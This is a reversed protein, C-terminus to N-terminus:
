RIKTFRLSFAIPIGLFGFTDFKGIWDKIHGPLIAEYRNDERVDVIFVATRGVTIHFSRNPATLIRRIARAVPCRSSCQKVGYLIDSTEVYIMIEKSWDIM